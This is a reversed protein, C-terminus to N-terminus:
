TSKKLQRLITAQFNVLYACVAFSQKALHAMSFPIPKCLIRFTKIQQIAREVHIRAQAIKESRKGDHKRLQSRNTGKFDPINVKM